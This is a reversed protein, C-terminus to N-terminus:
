AAVDRHLELWRKWEKATTLPQANQAHIHELSWSGSAHAQFSYRESSSARRRVSEVNMLLLVDGCKEAPFALDKVQDETHNLRKRIRATLADTLQPKTLDHATSM